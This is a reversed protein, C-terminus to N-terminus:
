KSSVRSGASVRADQECGPSANADCLRSARSESRELARHILRLSVRRDRFLNIKEFNCASDRCDQEHANRDRSHGRRKGGRDRIEAYNARM